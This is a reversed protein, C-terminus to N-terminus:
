RFIVKKWMKPDVASRLAGLFFGFVPGPDDKSIIDEYYNDGPLHFYGPNMKFREPNALFHLIDGPLLWRCRLNSRYDFHPEIDGEMALRYLLYPFDIGALVAAQLSSWFRTNVELLKPLGDRPDIMIDAEAIGYWGFDKLLNHTLDILDPRLVSETLTSPGGKLPYQRLEKQVYAARLQTNRNYLLCVHFKEGPPIYEQVIPFPYNRHVDLYTSLFDKQNFIYKIGRSGSSKRPKIVLPFHLKSLVSELENLDNITVTKPYPTGTKITIHSFSSKDGITQLSEQSPIPVRTLKAFADAHEAVIDMIDEDMPFLVDPNHKEIADLFYSLFQEKKDGPSPYVFSRCCYKSYKALAFRTDEGVFVRVGKKGLSRAVALTKRQQGDTLMVSSM